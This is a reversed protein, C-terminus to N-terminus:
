LWKELEKRLEEAQDRLRPTVLELRGHSGWKQLSCLEYPREESLTSVQIM